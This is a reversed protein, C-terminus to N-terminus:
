VIAGGEVVATAAAVEAADAEAAAEASERRRRNRFGCGEREKASAERSKAREAAAALRLRLGSQDFLQPAPDGEPRGKAKWGALTAPALNWPGMHPWSLSAHPLKGVRNQRTRIRRGRRLSRLHTNFVLRWQMRVGVRHGSVHPPTTLM